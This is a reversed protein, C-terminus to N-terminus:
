TKRPNKKIILVHQQETRKKKIILVHQQETRKKKPQYNNFVM